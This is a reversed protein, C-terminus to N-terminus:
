FKDQINLLVFSLVEASIRSALHSSFTLCAAKLLKLVMALVIDM